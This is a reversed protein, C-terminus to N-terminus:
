SRGTQRAHAGHVRVPRVPEDALLIKFQKLGAFERQYPREHEFAHRYVVKVARYAGSASRALWVEGCSGRGIRRLMELDPIGPAAEPSASAPPPTDSV